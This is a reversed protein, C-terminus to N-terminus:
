FTCTFNELGWICVSGGEIEVCFLNCRATEVNGGGKKRGDLGDLISKQVTPGDSRCPSSFAAFLCTCLLLLLLLLLLTTAAVLRYSYSHLSSERLSAGALGGRVGVVRKM